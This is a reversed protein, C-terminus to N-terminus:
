RLEPQIYVLVPHSIFLLFQKECNQHSPLELDIRRCIQQRTWLFLRKQSHWMVLPHRFLRPDRKKLANIETMHARDEHGLWGGVFVMMNPIVNLCIFKPFVCGDLRYCAHYWWNDRLLTTMHSSPVLRNYLIKKKQFALESYYSSFPANPTLHLCM